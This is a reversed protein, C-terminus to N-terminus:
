RTPPEAPHRRRVVPTDRRAKNRAARTARRQNREQEVIWLRIKREVISEHGHMHVHEGARSDYVSSV